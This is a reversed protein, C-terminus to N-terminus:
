SWIVATKIRLSLPRYPDPTMPAYWRLLTAGSITRANGNCRIADLADSSPDTITTPGGSLPLIM